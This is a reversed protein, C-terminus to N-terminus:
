AHSTNNATEYNKGQHSALLLHKFIDKIKPMDTNILTREGSRRTEKSMRSTAISVLLDNALDEWIRGLAQLSRVHLQMYNVLDQISESFDDIMSPTDRLLAAHRLILARKNDYIEVLHNWAVEYNDESIIFAGIAAEAKGAVSLRLYNHKQINNLRTQNHIVTIFADKFTIWNELRGDFKPLDIKPLKVSLAISSTSPTSLDLSSINSNAQPPTASVNQGELLVSATALVNDYHETVVERETETEEFDEVLGSEDQIDNFITFQKRLRDIRERLKIREKPSDQYGDLCNGLSTIQVKFVRHRQKVPRIRTESNENVDRNAM